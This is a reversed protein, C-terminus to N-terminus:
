LHPTGLVRKLLSMPDINHADKKKPPLREIALKIDDKMFRAETNEPIDPFFVFGAM